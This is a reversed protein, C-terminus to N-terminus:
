KVLKTAIKNKNVIFKIHLIHSLCSTIYIPDAIPIPKKKFLSYRIDSFLFIQYRYVEVTNPVVNANIPICHTRPNAMYSYATGDLSHILVTVCYLLPIMPNCHPWPLEPLSYIIIYIHNTTCSSKCFQRIHKYPITYLLPQSFIYVLLM